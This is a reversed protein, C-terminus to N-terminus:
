KKNKDLKKKTQSRKKKIYNLYQIESKFVERMPIGFDDPDFNYM